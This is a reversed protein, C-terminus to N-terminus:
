KAYEKAWKVALKKANRQIWKAAGKQDLGKPMNNDLKLKRDINADRVLPLVGLKTLESLFLYRADNLNWERGKANEDDGTLHEWLDLCIGVNREDIIIKHGARLARFAIDTNNFGLGDDQFEWLGNLKRGLKTPKAGYNMEFDYPNRTERVEKLKIRINQRMFKGVVDTKGDFWDGKNKRNPKVSMSYYKDVPAIIADPYRRHLRVIREIGDPPMLIFDQLWVIVDGTANYIAMNDAQILAYNYKSKALKGRLYRININYKKAYYRATDRRDKKYDDIILWEVNKYSQEAINKSM